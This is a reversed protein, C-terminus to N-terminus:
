DTLYAESDIARGNKHVEYHLHPGTSMGTSGVLGIQQERQVTQGVKVNYDSLHGYLTRLGNGHDILVMNGYYKDYGAEAVVGKATALVPTGPRASIDTGDHHRVRRLVPHMRYGFRSTIKGVGGALPWTSPLRDIRDVAAEADQIYERLSQRRLAIEQLLLDASPRSLGFIVQPPRLAADIGAIAAVSTLGPGGGKGDGAGAVTEKTKARRPAIGTINRARTEMERLSDLESTIASISAEYEARLRSEVDRAAADARPATEPPPAPRSAAQLELSRYAEKIQANVRAMAHQRQFLFASLFALLAMMGVVSLFHWSAVEVTRTSSRDHPILM